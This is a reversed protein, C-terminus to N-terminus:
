TKLYIIICTFLFTLILLPFIAERIWKLKRIKLIDIFKTQVKEKVFSDKFLINPRNLEDVLALKHDSSIIITETKPSLKKIEEAIVDGKKLFAHQGDLHYDLIILDPKLELANLCSEGSAFTFIEFKPNRALQTKLLKLYFPDDDVIFITLEVDKNAEIHYLAGHYDSYIIENKRMM